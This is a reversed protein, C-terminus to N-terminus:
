KSAAAVLSARAMALAGEYTDNGGIFGSAHCFVCGEVGAKASLEGDRLGRWPEPMPLRSDFSGPGRAVCQVRWKRERDDEYVVYLVTTNDAESLGMEEELEYLHEKWPAFAELKVIRGSPDVSARKAVSAEVIKKAPLWSGAVRAVEAAFEGGALEVAKEFAADLAANTQAEAPANWEPNLRGVRAALTTGDHYIPPGLPAASSGDAGGGVSYPEVGNDIADVAKVFTKYVRLYVREVAEDDDAGPYQSDAMVRKVVERGHHKYVLGASSLKVTHGHGFVEGFGRQHHDLRGKAPDYAGGVDIVIPLSALVDADRTRVVAAGAFAATRRLMWCGLAEDCHFTGSHTGITPPPPAKADAAAAGADAAAAGAAASSMKARKPASSTSPAAAASTPSAGRPAPHMYHRAALRAPSSFSSSLLARRTISLFMRRLLVSLFLPSTKSPLQKTIRSPLSAQSSHPLLLTTAHPGATANTHQDM